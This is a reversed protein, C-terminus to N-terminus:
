QVTGSGDGATDTAVQTAPAAEPEAVPEPAAKPAVGLWGAEQVTLEVWRGGPLAANDNTEHPVDHVIKILEGERSTGSVNITKTPDTPDIVPKVIALSLLPEDNAGKHGELDRAAIPFALHEESFHKYKVVAPVNAVLQSM